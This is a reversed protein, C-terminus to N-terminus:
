RPMLLTIDSLSMLSETVDCCQVQEDGSKRCVVGFRQHCHSTLCAAGSGDVKLSNLRNCCRM